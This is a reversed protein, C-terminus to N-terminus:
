DLWVFCRFFQMVFLAWLWGVQIIKLFKAYFFNFSCSFFIQLFFFIILFFIQMCKPKNRKICGSHKREIESKWMLQNQLSVVKVKHFMWYSSTVIWNAMTVELKAAVPKWFFIIELEHVNLYLRLGELFM